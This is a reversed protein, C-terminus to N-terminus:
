FRDGIKNKGIGAADSRGGIDHWMHYCFAEPIARKMNIGNNDNKQWDAPYIFNDFHLMQRSAENYAHMSGDHGRYGILRHQTSLGVTDKIAISMECVEEFTPINALNLENIRLEKIDERMDFKSYNLFIPNDSSLYDYTFKTLHNPIYFDCKHLMYIDFGDIQNLHMQIDSVMRKDTPMQDEFTIINDFQVKSKIYDNSFITSNNYIIFTDILSKDQNNFAELSKNLHYESLTDFTMFIYALKKNM